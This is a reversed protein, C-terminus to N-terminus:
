ILLAVGLAPVTLSNGWNAESLVDKMPRPLSVSQEAQSHNIIIFVEKGDGARRCVEVGDSVPGFPAQIGSIEVLWQALSKMTKDDLWTGVYTIRGKGASRTVAAAQNDLWGNCVGYRMLVEADPCDVKLLEAWIRAEGASLKGSVPIPNHLWYYEDVHAGLLDALPGPQRSELWRGHVDKGGSRAGLVLHGGSEVYRRLNRLRDDSLIDLNPAIVLKYSDLSDTPRVFDVEHTVERVARHYM